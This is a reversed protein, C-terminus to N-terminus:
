RNVLTTLGASVIVTELTHIPLAPRRAPGEEDPAQDALETNLERNLVHGQELPHRAHVCPVLFPNPEGARRVEPLSPMGM